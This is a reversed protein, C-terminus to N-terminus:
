FWFTTRATVNHRNIFVLVILAPDDLALDVSLDPEYVLDLVTAFICLKGNIKLSVRQPDVFVQLQCWSIAAIQTM